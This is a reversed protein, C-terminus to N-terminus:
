RGGEAGAYYAAALPENVIEGDRTAVGRALAPMEELAQEWGVEAIRRLYPWVANNFAHTATRPVAGPVNPVCFHVVGEEMFVPDRLTTPRSTEVCGGQDISFDMIVAGRKMSRVMERTVIIPTRAGPVLVAGILVEAFRAVRAINFPYSVMTTVRGQFLWDMQRLKELNRDLIFVDAGLGLFTRAANTGLVGAGLIAVRAAPIGPVGSLLVGRGGYNSQLFTAALQPAMRGAVESMTRLVPLTGDEEEITEYAIATIKKELLTRVIERRAAALHLFGCLIQGERLWELEEQTPRVAKLVMDARGYVEEGSYVICGGAREYHYDTFGAGLGAEKEIYCTHGARTLLDVGYPTLGVRRELDRREKPIGINM